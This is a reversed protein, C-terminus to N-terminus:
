KLGYKKACYKRSYYIDFSICPHTYHDGAIKFTYWSNDKVGGFDIDVALVEYVDGVILTGEMLSKAFEGLGDKMNGNYIVKEGISAIKDNM